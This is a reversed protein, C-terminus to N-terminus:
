DTSMPGSRIDRLLRRDEAELLQNVESHLIALEDQIKKSRRRAIIAWLSVIISGVYLASGLILATQAPVVLVLGAALVVMVCGLCLAINRSVIALAIPLLLLTLVLAPPLGSLLAAWQDLWGQM